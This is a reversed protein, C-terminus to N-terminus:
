RLPEILWLRLPRESYPPGTTWLLTRVRYPILLLALQVFPFFARHGSLVGNGAKMMISRRIEGMPLVPSILATENNEDAGSCDLTNSPVRGRHRLCFLLLFLTNLIMIPVRWRRIMFEVGHFQRPLVAKKQLSEILNRSGKLIRAGSTNNGLRHNAASQLTNSEQSHLISDTSNRQESIEETRGKKTTFLEKSCQSLQRRGHEPRESKDEQWLFRCHLTPLTLSTEERIFAFSINDVVTM